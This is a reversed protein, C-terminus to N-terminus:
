RARPRCTATDPRRSWLSNVPWSPLFRSRQSIVAVATVKRSEGGSSTAADDAWDVLARECVGIEGREVIEVRAKAAFGVGELGGVVVEAFGEAGEVAEGGGVLHASAM